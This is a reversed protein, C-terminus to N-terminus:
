QSRAVFSSYEVENNGGEGARWSVRVTVRFLNTGAPAVTNDLYIEGAPVGPATPEIGAVEFTTPNGGYATQIGDFPTASIQELQSRAAERAVDRERSYTRAASSAATASFLGLILTVVVAATVVVEVLSFGSHTNRRM